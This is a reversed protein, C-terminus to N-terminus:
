SRADSNREVEKQRIEEVKEAAQEDARAPIVPPGSTRAEEVHREQGLEDAVLRRMRELSRNIFRLQVRRGFLKFGLWVLPNTIKGAQSFANIRFAVNGSALWKIVTFEMQGRELHGELTQYNFGWVQQEGSDSQRREDIVGGVRTGFWFTLGFARGRLLM